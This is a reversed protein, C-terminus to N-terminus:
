GRREGQAKEEVGGGASEGALTSEMGELQRRLALVEQQALFTVDSESIDCWRHSVQCAQCLLAPPHRTCMERCGICRKCGPSVFKLLRRSQGRPLRGVREFEWGGEERAGDRRGTVEEKARGGGSAAAGPARARKVPPKVVLERIRKPLPPVELTITKGTVMRSRGGRMVRGSEGKLTKSSSGAVELGPISSGPLTITKGTAPRATPRVQVKAKTSTKPTAVEDRGSSRCFAEIVEPGGVRLTALTKLFSAKAEEAVKAVSRKAEERAEEERREALREQGSSTRSMGGAAPAGMAAGADVEMQDSPAESGERSNNSSSDSSSSVSLITPAM